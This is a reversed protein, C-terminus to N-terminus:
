PHNGKAQSIVSKQKLLPVPTGRQSKAKFIVFKVALKAFQGPVANPYRHLGLYEIQQKKQDLLAVADDALIVQDASNPAM